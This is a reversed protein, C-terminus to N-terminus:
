DLLGQIIDVILNNQQRVLVIDGGIRVYRYGAPAPPFQRLVQTPVAYTQVGRPVPQGVSWNRAQGPALCGNERKRLGPPCNKGHGYNQGYYQKANNRHEDNFFAGQRVEEQQHQVGRRSNERGRGDNEADKAMAPAATLVAIAIFAAVRLSATLQKM